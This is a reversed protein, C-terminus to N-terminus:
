DFTAVGLRYGDNWKDPTVRTDLTYRLINKRIHCGIEHAKPDLSVTGPSPNANKCKCSYGNTAAKM